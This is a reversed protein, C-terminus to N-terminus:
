PRSLAQAEGHRPASCSFESKSRPTTSASPSKCTLRGCKQACPHAPANRASLVVCIRVKSKASSSPTHSFRGARCRPRRSSPAAEGPRSASLSDSPGRSSGAPSSSSISRHPGVLPRPASSALGHSSSSPLASAGSPSASASLVCTASRPLFHVGSLIAPEKNSSDM